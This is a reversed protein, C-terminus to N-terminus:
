SPYRQKLASYLDAQFSPCSSDMQAVVEVLHENDEKGQWQKHYTGDQYGHDQRFFNLVNKGVYGRYLDDFTMDVAALLPLFSGTVFGKKNLTDATFIELQQRFDVEDVSGAEIAQELEAALSDMDSSKMLLDSLGFHWIDILELRSQELDPKQHKWWKWGYHDMLEACEVWIARYWEFGQERWQAHVKTNMGDQLELMNKLQERM